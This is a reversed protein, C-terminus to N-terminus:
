GAAPASGRTFRQIVAAVDAAREWVAWHRGGRLVELQAGPVCRAVGAGHEVPFHHDHESWLVLVRGASAYRAPLGPLEDDYAHCMRVLQDRVSREAFTEWLLDQLGADVPTETFTRMCQAFVIRPLWTLVPGYLRGFRLVDLEWSTPTDPMALCNMAVVESVRPDSGALLALQGGMDHGLLVVDDLDLAAVLERVWASLATPGHVGPVAASRGLGPLDVAIVEFDGQLEAALAAFVFLNDPYGHLCVLPRGRGCRAIRVSFGAVSTQCPALPGLSM